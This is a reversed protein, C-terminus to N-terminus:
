LKGGKYIKRSKKPPSFSSVPLFCFLLSMFPIISIFIKNNDKKNNEANDTQVSNGLINKDVQLNRINNDKSTQFDQVDVCRGKGGGSEATVTFNCSYYADALIGKEKDPDIIIYRIWLYEDVANFTFTTYNNSQVDTITTDNSQVDIWNGPNESSLNTYFYEYKINGSIPIYSWSPVTANIFKDALWTLNIKQNSAGNSNWVRIWGDGYVETTTASASWNGWRNEANGTKNKLDNQTNITIGNSEVWDGWLSAGNKAKIQYYYTKGITKGSIAYSTDGSLISSNVVEWSGGEEKEELWYNGIGSLDSAAGWYVTFSGDADYDRDPDFETLTSPPSPATTDIKFPGIHYADSGLNTANDKARVHLYWNANDDLKSSTNSTSTTYNDSDTPVTDSSTSWCYRFGAIGATADSHGAWIVEVTNDSNWVGVTHSSTNSDPNGPATCDYKFTFITTWSANNGANDRTKVRLYFTGEGPAGPDYGASDTYDSFTGDSDGGWYYYYRGVGSTADDAGSWTFSPNSVTNQWTDSTAGGAETCGTPNTPVVRDLVITDTKVESAGIANRCKYYVTKTGDTDSGGYGSTLNWNSKTTAYTEWNSWSTGDNSFCMDTASSAAVTLDADSSNTYTAGANVSITLGTPVAAGATVKGTLIYASGYPAGVVIDNYSDNNVDGARSVSFGFLDDASGGYNTQSSFSCMIPSGYFVYVAGADSISGNHAYPAGVVIDDYTDNNLDGAGSVSYGFYDGTANGTLALDWNNDMSSRGKFIYARGQASNYGPAGVIIDAYGDGNVDSLNSVSYGFLSGSSEGTLTINPLTTSTTDGIVSAYDFGVSNQDAVATWYRWAIKVNTEGDANLDLTLEVRGPAEHYYDHLIRADPWTTGGDVSVRVEFHEDYASTKYDMWFVVKTNTYSGLNLAPTILWEDQVNLGDYNVLASYTGDHPGNPDAFYGRQWDGGAAQSETTWDTPPFSAGEFSEPGLITVTGGASEWLGSRGYYVYAKDAGPAGVIVDDYDDDNVNGANSVAFGFKDNNNEGTLTVNVSSFPAGLTGYSRIRHYEIYLKDQSTTDGSENQGVFRVRVYGSGLRQNSDLTIEKETMTTDTLDGMDKWGSGNYVFVDFNEGSTVNYNLQLYYNAASVVSTTNFEIDLKYEQDVSVVLYIVDIYNSKPATAVTNTVKIWLNQVETWTDADASPITGSEDIETASETLTTITYWNAGNNPSYEFTAPNGSTEDYHRVHAVVSTITGSMGTTDFDEAQVYNAKDLEYYVDNDSQIDGPLTGIGDGTAGVPYANGGSGVGEETLTAYANGDTASQANAFNAITGYTTANSSVYVTSDTPAGVAGGYYIYAKGKDTGNAYAGIIVDDYNDNNVDGAGSVSCGFRDGAGEGTLTVNANATTYSSSWDANARGFFLYAKGNGNDPEGIIIDDYGDSTEDIKGADSVSWGFHADDTTGNITVNAYKASINGTDIGSYGLFIYVAGRATGGASAYPAGAIIDSIGDGNVDASTLNWGFRDDSSIGSGYTMNTLPNNLVATRWDAYWDNDVGWAVRVVTEGSGPASPVSESSKASWGLISPCSDGGTGYEMYDIGKGASDNLLLDDGDDNWVGASLGMYLDYPNPSGDTGTGTHIIYYDGGDLYTNAPFTYTTGDQNTLTCGTMTVNMLRDPNCVKVWESTHDGYANVENIVVHSFRIDHYINIVPLTAGSKYLLFKMDVSSSESAWGTGDNTSQGGSYSGSSDGVWYFGNTSTDSCNAVLWYKEGSELVAPNNFVINQWADSTGMGKTEVSSINVGSPKSSSDTQIAVSLVTSSVTKARAYLSVNSVVIASTPTFSQAISQGDYIQYDTTGTISSTHLVPDPLPIKKCVELEGLAAYSTAGRVTVDMKVYRADVPPDLIKTYTAETYGSASAVTTYDVDDTSVSITFTDPQNGDAFMTSDWGVKEITKVATLDIKVWGTPYSSSVWGAGTDGDNANEAEYGAGYVSDATAPDAGNAQSGINIWKFNHTITIYGDLEWYQMESVHFAMDYVNGDTSNAEYLGGGGYNTSQTEDVNRFGYVDDYAGILVTFRWTQLEPSGISNKPVSIEVVNTTSSGKVTLVDYENGDEDVLRSEEGNAWLAYEWACSTNLTVKANRLTDTRGTSDRDKDILIEIMQESFGNTYSQSNDISSFNLLFNVSNNDACVRFERLDLCGSEFRSDSPYTYDSDGDDDGASDNWIFERESVTWNNYPASATGIWDATAGDVTIPAHSGLVSLNEPLDGWVSLAYDQTIGAADADTDTAVNYGWVTVNYKGATPVQIFVNEVNNVNDYSSPNSSSWSNTFQNGYYKTGDPGTVVLNLNNVLETEAAVTGKPDTWVLTIKLPRGSDAYIYYSKNGNTAIGPGTEDVTYINRNGIINNIKLRGWGQVASPYGLGIDEAGNILLAKVLAPSPLTGYTKNYDDMILLAAGAVQPAAYSTGGGSKYYGAGSAESSRTTMIGECSAVIDPKIRGDATGRSSDSYMVDDSTDNTNFDNLGGAAICNKASPQDGMTPSGPGDNGAAFVIVMPQEGDEWPDADRVADDIEQSDTTYAGTSGGGWSDSHVVASWNQADAFLTPMTPSTADSYGDNDLYKQIIVKANIAMGKYISNQAGSGIAIGCTGTGHGNTDTQDHGYELFQVGATGTDTDIVRGVLDPHNEDVGSDGIGIVLDTGNISPFHTQVTDAGNGLTAVDLYVHAIEYKEVWQVDPIFAIEAIKTKDITVRIRNNEKHLIKGGLREIQSIVGKMNKFVLVNIDVMSDTKIKAAEEAVNDVKNETTIADKQTTTHSNEKTDEELLRSSLKYAPHFLTVCRVVSLEEAREKTTEDMKVIFGFDPIYGYFKAGLDKVKNVWREHIPGNFQLIYYGDSRGLMLDKSIEPEEKLPDFTCAKLYIKADIPAMPTYFDSLEDAGGGAGSSEVDINNLPINGFLLVLVAASIILKLAFGKKNRLMKNM